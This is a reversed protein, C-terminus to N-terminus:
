VANQGSRMKTKEVNYCVNQKKFIKGKSHPICYVLIYMIMALVMAAIVDIVSHQKVFMTSLCILVSLVFSGIQIGKRNHLKESKVISIWLGISNFCHISPCVNTGVDVTYIVKTLRILVNDRNLSDLDPRFYVGTPYITYFILCVTMGIFLFATCHYFDKPSTFFFYGVVLPVYAFWIYYPIIFWENFPILDDFPLYVSHFSDLSAQNLYFFWILYIFVYSLIWAHRYKKFFAKMAADERNGLVKAKSAGEKDDRNRGTSKM